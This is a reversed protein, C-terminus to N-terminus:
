AELLAELEPGPELIDTNWDSRYCSGAAIPPHGNGDATGGEPWLVMAADGWKTVRRSEATGILVEHKKEYEALGTIRQPVGPAVCTAAAAITSSACRPIWIAGPLAARLAALVLRVAQQPRLWFRTALPDTLTIEGATETQRRWLAVVSGRSAVVNGYRVASYTTGLPGAWNNAGVVIGEAVGKLKGYLNVPEVAKDTSLAVMHRVGARLAAKIVSATGNVNVDAAEFPERQCVEIRKMAAAHVVHTCDAMAHVLRDEDRVDGIIYRMPSDDAMPWQAAMQAQKFEDRSYVRLQKLRPVLGDGLLADAFAHGFTGTGGTVLIKL